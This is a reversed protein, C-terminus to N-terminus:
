HSNKIFVTYVKYLEYLAVLKKYEAEQIDKKSKVLELETLNGNSFLAQNVSNKLQALKITEEASNVDAMLSKLTYYDSYVQYEITKIRNSRDDRNTKINKDYTIMYDRDTGYSSEVKKTENLIKLQNDLKLIQSDKEINKAAVAMLEEDTMQVNPVKLISQLNDADITYIKIYSNAILVNFDLLLLDAKRKYKEVDKKAIELNVNSTSLDKFTIKGLKFQTSKLEYDKQQIKVISEYLTIDNSITKWDVYYKLLQDTLELKKDILSRQLEKKTNEVSIPDVYVIKARSFAKDPDVTIISKYRKVNTEAEKIADEQLKLDGEISTIDKNKAFMLELAQSYQIRVQSVNGKVATTIPAPQVSEAAFSVNGTIM